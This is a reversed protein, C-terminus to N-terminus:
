HPLRVQRSELDRWGRIRWGGGQQRRLNLVFIPKVRRDTFVECGDEDCEERKEVVKCLAMVETGARLGAIARKIKAVQERPQDVFPPPIAVATYGAEKKLIPKCDAPVSGLAKSLAAARAERSPLEGGAASLLLDNFEWDVLQHIPVKSTALGRVWQEVEVPPAAKPAAAKPAAAKPRAERVAPVTSGCAAVLLAVSGAGALIVALLAKKQAPTQM